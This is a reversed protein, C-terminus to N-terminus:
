RNNENEKAMFKNKSPLFKFGSQNVRKNIVSTCARPQNYRLTIYKINLIVEFYSNFELLIFTSM